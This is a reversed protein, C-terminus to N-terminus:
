ESILPYLNLKEPLLCLKDSCAQLVVSVKVQESFPQRDIETLKITFAKEFLGLLNEDFSVSYHSAKPYSIEAAIKQGNLKQLNVETAIYRPNSVINANIHWGPALDFHLKIMRDNLASKVKGKGKAFSTSGFSLVNFRQSQQAVFRYQSALKSISRRDYVSLKKVFYQYKREQTLEYGVTLAQLVTAKASEIEDDRNLSTLTQYNDIVSLEDVLKDLLWKARNLHQNHNGHKDWQQEFSLKLLALAFWAYDDINASISAQKLFISRYLHGDVRSTSWLKDLLTAAQQLYQENGTSDYAEMLGLAYMSNWSVIVKEDVLPQQLSQRYLAVQQVSETKTWDQELSSLYVLSKGRTPSLSSILPPTINLNTHTDVKILDAFYYKGEVGESIASLASAYGSDLRLWKNVWGNTQKIAVSYETKGTIGYLKALVRLMNAQTYLMKEFHPRLWISDVAYRHFGGEIADYTPSLLIDNVQNEVSNLYDNNGTRLYEDLLGLLWNEKFFRPDTGLLEDRLLRHIFAHQKPLLQGWETTTLQHSKALSEQPLESKLQTEIRKALKNIADPNELWRQALGLITKSFNAKDLYSDVWIIKGQPTLIVNIPWGAEGKIVELASKFRHDVLPWQERDVKISVYHENLIAAIAPNNFSEEAMVHCWHCTSYGISVFILQNSDSLGQEFSDQWERWNIPQLSHSLLYPSDSLILPNLDSPLENSDIIQQSILWEKRELFARKLEESQNVTKASGDVCVCGLCFALLILKFTFSM